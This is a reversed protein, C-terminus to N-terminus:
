VALRRYREVAKRNAERCLDCRCKHYSYATRTGHKLFGAPTRCARSCFFHEQGSKLRSRIYILSRNFQCGCAPCTMVGIKLIPEGTDIDLAIGHWESDYAIAMAIKDPATTVLYGSKEAWQSVDHLTSPPCLVAGNGDALFFLSEREFLFAVM